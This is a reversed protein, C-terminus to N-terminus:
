TASTPARAHPEDAGPARVGVDARRRRQQDGLGVGAVDSLGARGSQQLLHHPRHPRVPGGGVGERLKPILRRTTTRRSCPTPRCARPRQGQPDRRGPHRLQGPGARPRGQDPQRRLVGPPGRRLQRRPHPRVAAGRPRAAARRAVAAGGARRRLHLGGAMVVNVGGTERLTDLCKDVGEDVFSRAGIQIAVFPEGPSPPKPGAERPQAMAPAAALAPALALGQLLGRRSTEPASPESM